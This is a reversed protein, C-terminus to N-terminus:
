TIVHQHCAFESASQDEDTSYKRKNTKNKIESIRPGNPSSKNFFMLGLAPLHLYNGVGKAWDPVRHPFGLCFLTYNMQTEEKRTYVRPHNGVGDGPRNGGGTGAAGGRIGGNSM